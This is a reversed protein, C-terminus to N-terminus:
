RRAEEITEIGTSHAVRDFQVEPPVRALEMVLLLQRYEQSRLHLALDAVDRDAM